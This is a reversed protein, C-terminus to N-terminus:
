SGCLCFIGECLIDESWTENAVLSLTLDKRLWQLMFPDTGLKWSCHSKGNSRHGGQLAICHRGELHPLKVGGKEQQSFNTIIILLFTVITLYYVELNLVLFSTVWLWPQQAIVRLNSFSLTDKLISSVCHLIWRIWSGIQHKPGM